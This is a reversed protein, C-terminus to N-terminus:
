TGWSNYPYAPGIYVGCGSDMISSTPYFGFDDTERQGQRVAKDLASLWLSWEDKFKARTKQDPSRRYCQAQFGQRFYSAYDDPVPDITQNISTFFPIRMQCVPQILWVTGTQPPIPNLRFAQGLPDVAKWVVTGDTVTSAVTSPSAYTPFAPPNTWAPQSSGCTGYQTVVWFNGNPDTICTTANIPGNPIGVPNTYVVNPGPNQQGSAGAGTVITQGSPNAVTPGLPAQGWTGTIATNNQIWCIKGPNATQGDTVMLDRHVELPRKTKPVSTQNVNSAWCSEIWGVNSVGPVFYDQQYSIVPFAPTNVRNWKWNFPQGEPGGLLMATIVDNAMTIAPQNSFGSTALAPALDSFSEADDAVQQLTVTSM